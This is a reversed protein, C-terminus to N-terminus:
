LKIIHIRSSPMILSRKPRATITAKVITSTTQAATDNKTLLFIRSSKPRMTRNSVTSLIIAPMAAIEYRSIM